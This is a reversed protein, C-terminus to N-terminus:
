DHIINRSIVNLAATRTQKGWDYSGKSNTASKKKKGKKKLSGLEIDRTKLIYLLGSLFMVTIVISATAGMSNYLANLWAEFLTGLFKFM